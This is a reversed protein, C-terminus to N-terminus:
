SMYKIAIVVGGGVRVVTVVGRRGIVVSVELVVLVEVVLASM